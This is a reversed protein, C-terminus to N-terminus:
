SHNKEQLCTCTCKNPYNHITRKRYAPVHVNKPYNHITRKRYAPVHVNTPTIIFPEKGTLLYMYMKLNGWCIYMYRSVPFSGNMIVRLIYMYRSVPLSGNM